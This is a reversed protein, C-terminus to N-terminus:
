TGARDASSAQPPPSHAHSPRGALRRDVARSPYGFLIVRIDRHTSESKLYSSESLLEHPARARVCVCVAEGGGGCVAGRVATRGVAAAAAHAPTAPYRRYLCACRRHSCCRRYLCCTATDHGAMVHGTFAHADILAAAGTDFPLSMATPWRCRCCQM